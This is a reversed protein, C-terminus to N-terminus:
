RLLEEVFVACKEDADDYELLKMAAKIELSTDVSAVDKRVIAPDDSGLDTGGTGFVGLRTGEDAKLTSLYSRVSGSANGVYVPGGAVIVDYGSTRWAGASRIGCLDVAYGKAQLDGAITAAADKARGTIGPDYVVLARGSEAGAPSLTEHGTATYSMGDMLVFGMAAFAALVALVLIAVVAVVIDKLRM